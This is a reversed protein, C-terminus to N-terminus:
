GNTYTSGIPHSHYQGQSVDVTHTRGKDDKVTLSYDPDDWERKNECVQKSKGNVYKTSCKHKTEWEGAEEERDIVTGTVPPFPEFGCGTLALAALLTLARKM